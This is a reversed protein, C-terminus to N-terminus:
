STKPKYCIKRRQLDLSGVGVVVAVSGVTGAITVRLLGVAWFTTCSSICQSCFLVPRLMVQRNHSVVRRIGYLVELGSAKRVVDQVLYWPRLLGELVEEDQWCLCCHSM